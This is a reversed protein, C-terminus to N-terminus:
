LKSWGMSMCAYKIGDVDVVDGVSLSRHDGYIEARERERYPNNSLDFVEEAAEEGEKKTEFSCVAVYNPLHERIMPADKKGFTFVCFSNMPMLLVSVKAM